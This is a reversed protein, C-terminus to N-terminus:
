DERMTPANAPQRRMPWFGRGIAAFADLQYEVIAM